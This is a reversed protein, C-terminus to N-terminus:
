ELPRAVQLRTVENRFRSDANARLRVHALALWAPSTKSSVWGNNAVALFVGFNIQQGM